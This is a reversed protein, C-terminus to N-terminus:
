RWLLQSFYRKQKIFYEWVISRPFYMSVPEKLAFKRSQKRKKLWYFFKLHFSLHSRLVTFALTLNGTFLLHFFAIGDLFLRFPLKWILERAPLNKTLLILNNRYNRFTKSPSGYSIISGGVHFVQSSPISMIKYGANKMRWCLDVEEMHAFFDNDLGGLNHYVESKVFFCAGSAWFVEMPTDYQGKDEEVTYFLRGRCFLYGYKDLFGGCAGAYEFENKKHWSRIKPQCAAISTDADFASIIGDTWGKSVEVDSSLLCYYTSDIQKLSEVYGNTFGRNKEIHIVRLKPYNVHLFNRTDDTSGNNVVVVPFDEPTSAILKPLFM